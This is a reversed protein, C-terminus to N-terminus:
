DDCETAPVAVVATAHTRNLVAPVVVRGLHRWRPLPESTEATDVYRTIDACSNSTTCLCRQVYLSRDGQAPVHAPSCKGLHAFLAAALNKLAALSWIASKGLEMKSCQRIDSCPKCHPATQPGEEPFLAGRPVTYTALVAGPFLVSGLCGKFTAALELVAESQV